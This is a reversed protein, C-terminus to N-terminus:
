WVDEQYKGAVKMMKLMESADENSISKGTALINCLTDHVGKAMNKADGCIYIFAGKGLLDLVQDANEFLKDQVYTKKTKSSRSLAVFMEFTDGLKKAYETWEDAYLFDDDNRCGYFLLAKGFKTNESNPKLTMQVKERVFGRFPAVGTGPGIMIIPTNPNSPLRFQSKRVHVPLKFNNYLGRPGKLDYHVFKKAVTDNNQDIEINQLLNTTVGTIAQQPNEANIMSEVMATIHVTQKEMSASSSISYYRPQLRPINELLFTWPVISWDLTSDLAVLADSFNYYKSTISKHYLESNKSLEAIKQKLFSHTDQPVFQAVSAFLQRSIPGTIELYNRVAAGITCPTLFPPKVTSDLSKLDFAEAANLKFVKLFKAVHEDSNSPWVGLHDGTSYKMNSGTLDFEAHICNRGSAPSCLEKSFVVPAVYPHQADFPGLQKGENNTNLQATPLYQKNPEGHSISNEQTSDLKVYEFSSKFVEEKEDLKLEDKLIELVNEKWNVYDDDTTGMGDDAKGFKGLMTAGGIKSLKEVTKEAAGNYFEYTSNGLGFMLYKTGKLVADDAELTNLYDEFHVSSDPFDGEGYTSIFFAVIKVDTESSLEHLNEFDFNEIDGCMVNIQNRFKANLEKSFKKAYDEATGTQSGYLVVFNKNNQQVVEKLDRTDSNSVSFAPDDSEGQLFELIQDKKLYLTLAVILAVLVTFDLTDLGLPM